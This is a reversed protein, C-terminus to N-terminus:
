RAHPLIAPSRPGMALGRGDDRCTTIGARPYLSTRDVNLRIRTIPAIM